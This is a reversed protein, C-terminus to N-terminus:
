GEAPRRIAEVIAGLDLEGYGADIAQRVLGETALAVPLRVQADAGLKLILTMDKDALELSWWGLHDGGLMDEMRLQVGPAVAPSQGFVQRLVEDGIGSAQATAIAEALLATGGVLNLNSLLKLLTATGNPGTHVYAVSLDNWLQDLRKVLQDPGGVLLRARGNILAEPGGLIPADVFQGGPAEAALTRSTDPYVTSMDILTAEASLHAIAGNEGLAVHKVAADNTLLTIVADAGAVADEISPAEHAGRQVLEEARGPTRNWVTVDYSQDRLRRAVARGM